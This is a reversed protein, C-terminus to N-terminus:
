CGEAFNIINYSNVMTICFKVSLKLVVTQIIADGNSIYYSSPKTVTNLNSKSSPRYTRHFINVHKNLDYILQLIM